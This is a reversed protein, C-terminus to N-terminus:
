PVIKMHHIKESGKQVTKIHQLNTGRPLILEKEVRCVNSPGNESIKPVFIGPHGKPVHIKLIHSEQANKIYKVAAAREKAFNEDLTTSLFAPHHVINKENKMKEVDHITSSHVVLKHPTKIKNMLEDLHGINKKYYEGETDEIGKHTNWLSGNLARSGVQYRRVANREDLSIDKYDYHKNVSNYSKDGRIGMNLKTIERLYKM